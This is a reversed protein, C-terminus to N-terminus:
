EGVMIPFEGGEVQMGTRVTCGKGTNQALRLLRVTPEKTRFQEVLAAIGDHSGDDVVLVEYPKGRRGLYGTIETMYPVLRERENYAPIIVSLHFTERKYPAAVRPGRAKAGM